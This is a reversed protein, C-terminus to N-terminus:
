CVHSNIWPRCEWLATALEWLTCTGSARGDAGEATQTSGEGLHGSPFHVSGCCSISHTLPPTGPHSSPAQTTRCRSQVTAAPRARHCGLPEPCARAHTHIHGKTCTPAYRHTHRCQRHVCWGALVCASGRDLLSRKEASASSRSAGQKQKKCFEMDPHLLTQAEPQRQLVWAGAPLQGEPLPGLQGSAEM